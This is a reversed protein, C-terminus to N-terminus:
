RSGVTRDGSPTGRITVISPVDTRPSSLKLTILVAEVNALTVVCATVRLPWVEELALLAVASTLALVSSIKASWTHYSPFRGFKVLSATWSVGYGAVPAVMWRWEALLVAGELMGLAVLFGAYMALDAVSDLRAGFRSRQRLARALTGDLWDTVELFLFLLLVPTARDAAALLVLAPAGALRLSAVLNPLTVASGNM